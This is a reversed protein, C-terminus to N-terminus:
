SDVSAEGGRSGDAPGLFGRKRAEGVWRAATSYPKEFHKAVAQTPNEGSEWAARYVGAVEESFADSM